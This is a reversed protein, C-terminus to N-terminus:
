SKEKSNTGDTEILDEDLKLNETVELKIKKSISGKYFSITVTGSFRNNNLESLREILKDM